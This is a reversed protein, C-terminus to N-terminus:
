RAYIEDLSRSIATPSYATRVLTFANHVLRDRLAADEVLAAAHAALESATDAILAHEGHNVPLGEVGISTSVTATRHAFAELAKIRTGGGARIPIIAADAREYEDALVTDPRAWSIEPHDSELHPRGASDGSVLRIEFPRSVRRRLHPVIERCLFGIADRNPYYGHDGVFLFVFPRGATRPTRTTAEPVEVVNPLVHVRRPGVRSILRDRDVDSCVCVREFRALERREIARYAEADHHMIRALRRDGNAQALISLRERTMSEIDDLDLCSPVREVIASSGLLPLMYLRHVHVLDFRGGDLIGRLRQRDARSLMSWDTPQRSLSSYLSPVFRRVARRVLAGASWRAIPLVTVEDCMTVAETAATASQETTVLSVRYRRSLAHVVRYARQATGRGYRRPFVPSIYLARQM